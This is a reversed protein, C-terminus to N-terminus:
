GRRALAEQLATQFEVREAPDGVLMLVGTDPWWNLRLNTQEDAFVFMEFAGKDEWRGPEGLGEILAQLELRSGRFQM